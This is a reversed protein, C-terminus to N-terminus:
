NNPKLSLIYKLMSNKRLWKNDPNELDVGKSPFTRITKPLIVQSSNFKVGYDCQDSINKGDFICIYNVSMSSYGDFMVHYVPETENYGFGEKKSKEVTIDKVTKKSNRLFVLYESGVGYGVFPEFYIERLQKDGKLPILIKAKYLVNEYHEADGSVIEIFAVFDAQAFLKPASVAAPESLTITITKEKKEQAFCNLALATLFISTLLRLFM